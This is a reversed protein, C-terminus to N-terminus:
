VGHRHAEDASDAEEGDGSAQCPHALLAPEGRPQNPTHLAEFRFGSLLAGAALRAGGADMPTGPHHDHRAGRVSRSRRMSSGCHMGACTFRELV